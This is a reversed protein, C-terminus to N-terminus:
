KKRTKIVDEMKLEGILLSANVNHKEKNQAVKQEDYNAYCYRCYHACINYAGIDVTQVCFCHERLKGKRYNTDNKLLRNLMEKTICSTNSIGYVSLDYNEACTQLKIHYKKAILSLAESVQYIQKDSMETFGYRIGNQKTNKKWDLFSIIITEVYGELQKCLREFMLTHYAITYKKTILIPDYRVYVNPTGIMQAIQQVGAIIAKKNTVSAEIDNGYPTISVQMLYPIQLTELYSLMPLPNKTCFVIAEVDEFYIRSVQSAYFPNRVDVFGEKIRNHFWTAYFACIDTRGSAMLIM